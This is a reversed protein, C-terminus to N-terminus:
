KGNFDCLVKVFNDVQWQFDCLLKLLTRNSPHPKSQNLARGGSVQLPLEASGGTAWTISSVKYM